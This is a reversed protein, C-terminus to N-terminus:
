RCTYIVGPALGVMGMEHPFEAWALCPSSCKSVLWLLWGRDAPCGEGHLLPARGLDRTTPLVCIQVHQESIHVRQEGAGTVAVGGRLRCSKIGWTLSGMLQAWWEGSPQLLSELWFDLECLWLSSAATFPTWSGRFHLAWAAESPHQWSELNQTNPFDPVQASCCLEREEVVGYFLAVWFLLGFKPFNATCWGKHSRAQTMVPGLLRRRWSQVRLLHSCLKGQSGALCFYSIFHLVPLFNWRGVCFILLCDCFEGPLLYLFVYALTFALSM